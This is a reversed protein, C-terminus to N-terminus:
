DVSVDTLGISALLNNIVMDTDDSFGQLSMAVDFADYWVGLEVLTSVSALSFATSALQETQAINLAIRQIFGEVFLNDIETPDTNQETLSCSSTSLSLQLELLWRYDVGVQLPEEHNPWTVSFLGHSEPVDVVINSVLKDQEDLVSFTLTEIVPAPITESLYFWFTPHGAVTKGIPVLYREENPYLVDITPVVALLELSNCNRTGAARRGEPAGRDALQDLNDYVTPFSSFQVAESNEQTLITNSPMNSQAFTPSAFM